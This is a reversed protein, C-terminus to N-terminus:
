KHYYCTNFNESPFFNFIISFLFTFSPLFNLVFIVSILQFLIHAFLFVHVTWIIIHPVPFVQTSYFVHFIIFFLVFHTCASFCFNFPRFFVLFVSSNGSSVFTFNSLKTNTEMLWVCVCVCM